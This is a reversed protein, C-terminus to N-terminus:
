VIYMINTIIVSDTSIADPKTEIQFCVIPEAMECSCLTNNVCQTTVEMGMQECLETMKELSISIRDLIYPVFTARNERVFTNRRTKPTLEEFTITTGMEAEDISDIDFETFHKQNAQSHGSTKSKAFKNLMARVNSQQETTLELMENSM